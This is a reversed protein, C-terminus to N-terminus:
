WLKTGLIRKEFKSSSIRVWSRSRSRAATRPESTCTGKAETHYGTPFQGHVPDRDHFWHGQLDIRLGDGVRFPTASALLGIRLKAKEGEALPERTAHPHFPLYPLSREPDEARHSVLHM